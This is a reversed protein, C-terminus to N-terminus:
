YGCDFRDDEYSGFVMWCDDGEEGYSGIHLIDSLIEEVNNETFNAMRIINAVVEATVEWRTMNPFKALVEPADGDEADDRWFYLAMGSENATDYEKIRVLTGDEQVKWVEYGFGYQSPDDTMCLPTRDVDCEYPDNLPDCKVILYKM